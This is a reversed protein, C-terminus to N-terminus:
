ANNEDGIFETVEDSYKWEFRCGYECGNNNWKCQQCDKNCSGDNLTRLAAGLLRKAKRELRKKDATLQSILAIIETENMWKGNIIM